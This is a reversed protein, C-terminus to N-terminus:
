KRVFDVKVATETETMFRNSSQTQFTKKTSKDKSFMEEQVFDVKVATETEIMVNNSSMCTNSTQTQFTKKTPKDPKDKFLEEESLIRELKVENPIAQMPQDSKAGFFIPCYNLGWGCYRFKILKRM